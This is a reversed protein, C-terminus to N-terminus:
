LKNDDENNKVHLIDEEKKKKRKLFIKVTDYYFLYKTLLYIRIILLSTGCLIQKYLM